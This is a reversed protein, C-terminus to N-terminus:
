IFLISQYPYTDSLGLYIFSYAWYLFLVGILIVTDRKLHYKRQATIYPISIIYGCLFYWSVRTAFPSIMGFQLIIFDLCAFTILEDKYEYKKSFMGSWYLYLLLFIRLAEDLYNINLIGGETQYFLYKQPFIGVKLVLFEIIQNFFGFSVILLMYLLIKLKKRQKFKDIVILFAMLIASTHFLSAILVTILFKIYKKDFLCKLNAFIIFIALSQRAINFTRNYFIFCFVTLGIWMPIKERFDYLGKFVCSCIILELVFLLVNFNSTFRSVIFNVFMYGIETTPRTSIFQSFSNFQLSEQFISKIYLNIDTGVNDTRLGALLSLILISAILLMAKVYKRKTDKVLHDHAYVLFIAIVFTIIYVM